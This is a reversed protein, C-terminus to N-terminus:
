GVLSSHRQFQLKAVLIPFFLVSPPLPVPAAHKRPDGAHRGTRCRGLWLTPQPAWPEPGAGGESSLGGPSEPGGPGRTGFLSM